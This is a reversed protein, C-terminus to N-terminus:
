FFNLIYIKIKFLFDILNGFYLIFIIFHLIKNITYDKLILILFMVISIEINWIKWMKIYVLFSTKLSNYDIM